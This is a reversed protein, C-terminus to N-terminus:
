IETKILELLQLSMTDISKTLYQELNTINLRSSPVDFWQTENLVNSILENNEIIFTIKEDLSQLNMIINKGDNKLSEIGMDLQSLLDERNDYTINELLLEKLKIHKNSLNNTVDNQEKILSFKKM